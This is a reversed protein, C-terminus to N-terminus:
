DLNHTMPLLISLYSLSVSISDLFISGYILYISKSLLASCNLLSIVPKQFLAAPIILYVYGFLFFAQYVEMRVEDGNVFIIASDIM